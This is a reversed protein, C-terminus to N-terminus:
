HFSLTNECIDQHRNPSSFETSGCQPRLLVLQYHCDWGPGHMYPIANVGLALFGQNLTVHDELWLSPVYVGCIGHSDM